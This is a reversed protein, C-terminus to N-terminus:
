RRGRRDSINLFSVDHSQVHMRQWIYCQSRIHLRIHLNMLRFTQVLKGYPTRISDMALFREQNAIREARRRGMGSPATAIAHSAVRGVGSQKTIAHLVMFKFM